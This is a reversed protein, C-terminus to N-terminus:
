RVINDLPIYSIKLHTVAGLDLPVQTHAYWSPRQDATKMDIARSTSMAHLILVFERYSSWQGGYRGNGSVESGFNGIARHDRETTRIIQDDFNALRAKTPRLREREQQRWLRRLANNRLRKWKLMSEKQTINRGWVMQLLNYDGAMSTTSKGDDNEDSTKGAEEYEADFTCEDEIRVNTHAISRHDEHVAQLIAYHEFGAKREVERLFSCRPDTGSPVGRCRCRSTAECSRFAM